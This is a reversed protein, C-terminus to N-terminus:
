KANSPMVGVPLLPMNALTKLSSTPKKHFERPVLIVAM